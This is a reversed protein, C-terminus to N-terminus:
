QFDVPRQAVTKRACLRNANKPHTFGFHIQVAIRRQSKSFHFDDLLRFLTFLHNGFREFAAELDAATTEVGAVSTVYPAQDKLAEQGEELIADVTDPTAEEYGPLKAVADLGALEKLVFKMDKLPAVYSSM